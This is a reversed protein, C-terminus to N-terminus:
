NGIPLIGEKAPSIPFPGAIERGGPKNLKWAEYLGIGIIFLGIIGSIGVEVLTLFPQALSIVFAVVVLVVSYARGTAHLLPPVYEVCIAIYTLVMALAQYRRGGRHFSGVSVSRGIMYGLVVAMLGFEFGALNVILAYIVAGIASAALGFGAARFFRQWGAEASRGVEIKDRCAGCITAGGMDYYEHQLPERCLKCSLSSVEVYDARDFNLPASV